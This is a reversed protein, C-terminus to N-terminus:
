FPPYTINQCPPHFHDPQQQETVRDREMRQLGHVAACWAKVIPCACVQGESDGPAQEFEYEKHRHHWGDMENETM